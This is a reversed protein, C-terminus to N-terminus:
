NGPRREHRRVYRVAVTVYLAVGGVGVVVAAAPSWWIKAAAVAPTIILWALGARTVMGTANRSAFREGFTMSGM